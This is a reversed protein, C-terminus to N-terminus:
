QKLSNIFHKGQAHIVKINDLMAGHGYLRLESELEERAEKQWLSKFKEVIEIIKDKDSMSAHETKCMFIEYKWKEVGNELEEQQTPQTM